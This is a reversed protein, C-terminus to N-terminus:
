ARDSDFRVSRIAVVSAHINEFITMRAYSHVTLAQVIAYYRHQHSVTFAEIAAIAPGLLLVHDVAIPDAPISV